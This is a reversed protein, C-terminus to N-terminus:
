KLKFVSTNYESILTLTDGSRTWTGSEDDELTSNGVWPAAFGTSYSVGNSLTYNSGSLLYTATLKVSGIEFEGPDLLEPAIKLALEGELSGDNNFRWTNGVLTFDEDDSYDGEISQGDVTELRRTGVWENNGADFKSGGCGAIGIALIAVISVLWLLSRHIGQKFM